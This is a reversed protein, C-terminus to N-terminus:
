LKLMVDEVLLHMLGLLWKGLERRIRCYENNKWEWFRRDIAVSRNEVKRYM